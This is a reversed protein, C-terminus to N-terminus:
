SPFLHEIQGFNRSVFRNRRVFRKKQKSNPKVFVFQFWPQIFSKLNGETRTILFSENSIEPELGFIYTGSIYSSAFACHRKIKKFNNGFCFLLALYTPCLIYGSEFVQKYFDSIRVPRNIGISKPTVLM